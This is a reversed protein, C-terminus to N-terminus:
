GNRIAVHRVADLADDVSDFDAIVNGSDLDILAFTTQRTMGRAAGNDKLLAGRRM